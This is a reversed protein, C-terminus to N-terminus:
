SVGEKKYREILENHLGYGEDSPIYWRVDAGLDKLYLYAINTSTIGDVDRDGYILIKEKKDIALRIRKVAKEMDAFLFPNYLDSIRPHIFKEILKPTNIGKQLLISIVIKSYGTKVSLEDILAIDSQKIKWQKM